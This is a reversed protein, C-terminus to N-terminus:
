ARLPRGPLWWSLRGLLVLTAPALLARVVIADLLVAATIGVGIEKTILPRSSPSGGAGGRHSLRPPCYSTRLRHDVFGEM